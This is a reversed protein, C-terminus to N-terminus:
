SYLFARQLSYCVRRFRCCRAHKQSLILTGLLAVALLWLRTLSNCQAKCNTWLTNKHIYNMWDNHHGQSAPMKYLFTLFSQFNLHNKNIPITVALNLSWTVRFPLVFYQALSPHLTREFDTNPSCDQLESVRQSLPIFNLSSHACHFTPMFGQLPFGLVQVGFPLVRLM